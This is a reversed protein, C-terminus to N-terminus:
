EWSEWATFDIVPKQGKEVQQINITFCHGLFPILCIKFIHVALM